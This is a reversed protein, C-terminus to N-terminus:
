PLAPAHAPLAAREADTLRSTEPEAVSFPQTPDDPSLLIRARYALGSAPDDIRLAIRGNPATYSREVDGHLPVGAARGLDELEFFSGQGRRAVALAAQAPTLGYVVELTAPTATNANIDTSIPDATLNDRFDRWAPPAVLTNWGMLGLLQDRRTLAGKPPPPLGAAAYDSLDAGNTRKLDRPDLYDAFRDAMAGQWGPAVGLAAFLRPAAAYPLTDLNILGAEDQAALALGGPAAYPRGDLALLAPAAPQDGALVAASGLPRTAALFATRAELDLAQAQFAAGQKARRAEAALGSLAEIAVLFVLTVMAVVFLVSPLAFGAKHTVTTPAPRRASM